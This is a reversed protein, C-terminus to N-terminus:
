HRTGRTDEVLKEQSSEAEKQWDEISAIGPVQMVGGTVNVNVNKDGNSLKTIEAIRTLAAVRGTHSSGPGFYNAERVLGKLVRRKLVEEEEFEDEPSEDQREKILRQVFPEAMFQSSYDKAFQERFGIRIAAKIANFDVLYEEVFKKRLEIEQSTLDEQGEEKTIWGNAGWRSSNVDESM